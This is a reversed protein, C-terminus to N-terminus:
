YVGMKKKMEAIEEKVKRLQSDIDDNKLSLKQIELREKKIEKEANQAQATFDAIAKAAEKQSKFTHDYAVVNKPLATAAPTENKVSVDRSGAPSEAAAALQVGSDERAFRKDAVFHQSTDILFSLVVAAGRSPSDASAVHVAVDNDGGKFLKGVGSISDRRDSVRKGTTDSATLTGNIYLWYKGTFSFQIAADRPLGNLFLHKKAYMDGSAASDNWVYAPSGMPFVAPKLPSVEKAKKWGDGPSTPAVSWASVSDPRVNWNRGSAIIVRQFFNKGYKDPSLRALAQMIKGAYENGILTDQKAIRLGDEYNYIAKDQLEYVVDELQFMLEEREAASIDKPIDPSRLIKESLKDYDSGLSFNVRGCEDICKKSNEGLLKLSDLQKYAWLFYTRSQLKMPEITELLQKLYQYYYLPKMKIEAPVPANQMAAFADNLLSGANYYDRALAVKTKHMWGKQETSLSDFGKSLEMAKKFPIFAKQLLTGSVQAIDKEYVAAKIPDLKPREQKRWTEALDEYMQGLWYAAEFMKESQYKLVHEYAKTAEVLLATKTKQDAKFKADPLTFQIAAFAERKMTALAFAAEAAAYGNGPLGSATLKLHQQEAQTFNVIANEQENKERYVKGIMYLAEVTKASQPFQRIFNRYIVVAKPGLNAKVYYDATRLLMAEVDKEGPFMRTYRENAEAVKDSNGLKEYCLGLNFLADKMKDSDQYGSAILEYAEAAKDYKNIKEFDAAANFLANPALKSHPYSKVLRLYSECADNWKEVKEFCEASKFLAVDGYESGPYKTELSIFVGAADKYSASAMVQKAHSFESQLLFKYAEVRHLPTSTNKWVAEFAKSADEWKERGFHCQGLLFMAEVYNDGTAAGKGVIMEYYDAAKAFMKRNFYVSGASLLANQINKGNPFLERYNSVADVVRVASPEIKGEQVASDPPLMKQALAIANLAAQERRTSDIDKLKSFNIYEALAENGRGLKSELIVALNWRADISRAQTPYANVLTQYCQASKSYAASDKRMEARRFNEDAIYQGITFAISDIRPILISDRKWVISQWQGGKAYEKFFAERQGFAEEHKNQLEFIKILGLAADPAVISQPYEKLLRSYASVAANYDMDEERLEAVRKLVMAAYDINGILTLFKVADDMRNEENFSIAIYDIAEDRLLPNSVQKKSDLKTVDFDLAVEEVLYKFVAIAEDFQDQMYYCWGLNYLASTFQPHDRYYLVKHYAAEALKYGKGGQIKPHEFYYRAINMNAEVYFESEPYDKTLEVFHANAEDYRGLKQLALAKYFCANDALDHKPFDHIIRDYTEIVKDCNYEPFVLGQAGEALKKEYTRLKVDFEDAAQDNYLEALRFLIAPTYHSKPYSYLISVIHNILGAREEGIAKSTKMVDTESYIKAVEAGKRKLTDASPQAKPQKMADRSMKVLDDKADQYRMFAWDIYKAQMEEDRRRYGHGVGLCEKLVATYERDLSGLVSTASDKVITLAKLKKQVASDALTGPKGKSFFDINTQMRSISDRVGDMRKKLIDLYRREALESFQDQGQVTEANRIMAGLKRSLDDVKKENDMATKLLSQDSNQIASFRLIEWQRKIDAVRVLEDYVEFSFRASQLEQLIKEKIRERNKVDKLLAYAQELISLMEFTYDNNKDSAIFSKAMDRAKAYQGMDLYIRVTKIMVYPFRKASRPISGYISLATAYDGKICYIDALIISAESILPESFSNKRIFDLFLTAKAQDKIKLCCLASLLQSQTYLASETPIGSLLDFCDKFGGEHYFFKARAYLVSAFLPHSGYNTKFLAVISDALATNHDECAYELIRFYSPPTNISSPFRSVIFRYNDAALSTLSLKRYCEALVFSIFDLRGDPLNFAKLKELIRGAVRYNGAQYYGLAEAVDGPTVVETPIIPVFEEKLADELLWDVEAIIKGPSLVILCVTLFTLVSNTKM